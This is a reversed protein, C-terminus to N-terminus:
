RKSSCETQPLGAVLIGNGRGVGRGFGKGLTLGTAVWLGEGHMMDLVYCEGLRTCCAGDAGTALRLIYPHIPGALAYIKDGERVNPPGLGLMANLETKGRSPMCTFMSKNRMTLELHDVLRESLEKGGPRSVFAHGYM